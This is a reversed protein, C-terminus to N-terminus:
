LHLYETTIFLEYQYPTGKISYTQIEQERQMTRLEAISRQLVGQQQEVRTVMANIENLLALIDSSTGSM